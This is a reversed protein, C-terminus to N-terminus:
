WTFPGKAGNIVSQGGRLQQDITPGGGGSSVIIEPIYSYSDLLGGDSKVTRLCYTKGAASTDLNLVFDWMGDQGSPIAAISNTFPDTEMYSQYVATRGGNTPDNAISSIASGSAPTPNDYYNISSSSSANYYVTIIMADLRAFTTNTGDGTVDVSIAAGFGVDNIDAPTWSTGWLSGSSGKVADSWSASSIDDGVITGAKSLRLSNLSASGFAPLPPTDRYAFYAVEIGSIKSGSPISFGHNSSQAYQSVAPPYSAKSKISTTIGDQVTANEPVAWIATDISSNNSVSAPNKTQSSLTNDYFDTYTEGSFGTDCAGSKEAYQLKFNQGNQSMSVTDVALRQRLRVQSGATVSAATNQAALPSGPTTSDANAFLRYSSQTYSASAMVIEPTVSYGGIVLTDTSNYARMCYRSGPSTGSTTLAFDWLGDQGVPVSARTTFPNAESYKQSVATVGSRTPDTAQSQYTDGDSPTPNNYFRVPTSTTVETYTEGTGSSDCVNDSGRLAYYLKFGSGVSLSSDTVGLNLRLRFPSSDGVTAATNQNAIPTLNTGGGTNDANTFFRYGVQTITAAPKLAILHGISVGSGGTMVKTGTSGVATQLADQAGSTSRGTTPSGTANISSRITMSSGANLNTNAAVSYLAVLMTNAVTTTISPATMTTTATANAQVNSADIPSATDVGSYSVIIGSAKQSTAPALTFTYSSSELATAVRYFAASRVGSSTGSALTNIQTWGPSTVGTVATGGRVAIVAVMVDDTATSTPKSVVVTTAGGSSGTGVDRYAVAAAAPRALYITMSVILIATVVVPMTLKQRLLGTKSAASPLRFKHLQM